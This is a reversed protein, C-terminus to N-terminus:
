HIKMKVLNIGYDINNVTFKLHPCKYSKCKLDKSLKPLCCSDFRNIGQPINQDNNKGLYFTQKFEVLAKNTQFLM